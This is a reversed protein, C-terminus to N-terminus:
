LVNNRSWTLYFGIHLAFWSFLLRVFKGHVNAQSLKEQWFLLTLVTLKVCGQCCTWTAIQVNITSSIASNLVCGWALPTEQIWRLYISCHNEGDPRLTNDACETFSSANFIWTFIDIYPRQNPFNAIKQYLAQACFRWNHFSCYLHKTHIFAICIRIIKLATPDDTSKQEM